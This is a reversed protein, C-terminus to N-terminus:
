YSHPLSYFYQNKNEKQIGAESLVVDEKFLPSTKELHFSKMYSLMDRCKLTPSHNIEAQLLIFTSGILCTGAM